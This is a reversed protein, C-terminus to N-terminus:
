AERQESTSYDMQHNTAAINYYPPCLTQWEDEFKKQSPVQTRRSIRM